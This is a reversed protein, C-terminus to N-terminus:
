TEPYFCSLFYKHGRALCINKLVCFVHFLFSFFLLFTYKVLTLFRKEKFIKLSHFSLNHVLLFCKCFVCRIFSKYESYMFHLKTVHLCVLQLFFLLNSCVHWWLLCISQLYVCPSHEIDNTMLVLCILHM